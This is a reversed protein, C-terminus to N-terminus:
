RRLFFYLLLALAAMLLVALVVVLLITNKSDVAAPPQPENKPKPSETTAPAVPEAPSTAQFIRTYESPGTQMPPAPQAASRAALPKEFIGTARGGDFKPRETEDSQSLASFMKTFDGESTKPPPGPPAPAFQIKEHEAPTVFPSEFMRTFEGTTDPKLKTKAPPPFTPEAAEGAPKPPAYFFKTFEGPEQKPPPPAPKENVPAPAEFMRTFEGPQAKLPPASNGRAPSPQSPAFLRTFEGPESQQPEPKPRAAPSAMLQTRDPDFAEEKVKSVADSREQVWQGFARLPPLDHTVVVYFEGEREAGVLMILDEPGMSLLRQRLGTDERFRHLLLRRRTSKEIALWTEARDRQILELLEFQEALAM